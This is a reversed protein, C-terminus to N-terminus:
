KIYKERYIYASEGCLLASKQLMKLPEDYCFSGKEKDSQSGSLYSHDYEKKTPERTHKGAAREM